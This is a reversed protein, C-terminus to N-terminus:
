VTNRLVRDLQRARPGFAPLALDATRPDLLRRMAFAQARPLAEAMRSFWEHVVPTVHVPLKRRDLTRLVTGLKAMAGGKVGLAGHGGPGRVIARLWCVQKEAVHIPYFRRGTSHAVDGSSGTRSSATSRRTRGV